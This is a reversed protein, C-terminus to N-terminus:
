KRIIMILLILLLIFAISSLIFKLRLTNELEKKARYDGFSANYCQTDFSSDCKRKIKLILNAFDLVKENTRENNELATLLMFYYIFFVFSVIILCIILKIM